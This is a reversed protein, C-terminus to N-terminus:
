LVGICFGGPHKHELLHSTLGGNPDKSRRSTLGMVAGSDPARKQRKGTPRSTTSSWSSRPTAPSEPETRRRLYPRPLRRRPKSLPMLYQPSSAPAEARLNLSAAPSAVSRHDRRCRPARSSSSSGWNGRSHRRSGRGRPGNSIRCTAM